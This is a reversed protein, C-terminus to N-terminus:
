GLITANMWYWCTGSDKESALGLFANFSAGNAATASVGIDSMSDYEYAGTSNAWSYENLERQDQPTGPGLNKGGDEWSTFVTGDTSSAIFALPAITTPAGSPVECKVIIKLPGHELVTAEGGLPITGKSTKIVNTTASNPVTGLTGLNVKEGTVSGNAIKESTIAGGNIKQSTIASNKIKATTIANNKVKAATVANKKLQNAGVSNKGLQSAAVATAGGLVLFVAISSMVNAYTLRKRIQKM